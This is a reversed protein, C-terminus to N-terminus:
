EIMCSMFFGFINERDFTSRVNYFNEGTVIRFDLLSNLLSVLWLLTLPVVLAAVGVNAEDMAFAFLPALVAFQVISMVSLLWFCILPLLPIKKRFSVFSLVTIAATIFAVVVTTPAFSRTKLLLAFELNSVLIFVAAMLTVISVAMLSVKLIKYLRYLAIVDM